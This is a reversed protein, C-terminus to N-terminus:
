MQPAAAGTTHALPVPRREHTMAGGGGREAELSDFTSLKSAKNVLVFTCIRVGSTDFLRESHELASCRLFRSRREDGLDERHM